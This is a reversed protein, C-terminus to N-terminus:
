KLVQDFIIYRHTTFYGQFYIKSSDAYVETHVAYGGILGSFPQQYYNANDETVWSMIIPVYGLNHAYEEYHYEGANGTVSVSSLRNITLNQFESSFSMNTEYNNLVSQGPKSVRIGHTDTPNVSSATGDFKDVFIVIRFTYTRSGTHNQTVTLNFRNNAQDYDVGVYVMDMDPPFEPTGNSVAPRWKGSAVTTSEVFPFYAPSYSLPNDITTSTPTLSSSVTLTKEIIQYIKLNSYQSTYVLNQDGTTKVDYGLKSVKIGYM